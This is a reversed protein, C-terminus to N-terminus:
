KNEQTEAKKTKPASKKKFNRSYDTALKTPIDYTEGEDYVEGTAGCRVSRICLVKVM